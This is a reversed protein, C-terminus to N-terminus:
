QAFRWIWYAIVLGWALGIVFWGAFFRLFTRRDIM